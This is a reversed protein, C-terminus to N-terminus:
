ILKVLAGQQRYDSTLDASVPQGQVPAGIFVVLGKSGSGWETGEEKYMEELALTPLGSSFVLRRVCEHM